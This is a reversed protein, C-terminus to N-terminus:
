GYLLSGFGGWSWTMFPFLDKIVTNCKNADGVPPFQTYIHLYNLSWSQYRRTRMQRCFQVHASFSNSLIAMTLYGVMEEHVAVSGMYSVSSMDKYGGTCLTMKELHPLKEFCVDFFQPTVFDLEIDLIELMHKQMFVDLIDRVEHFRFRYGRLELVTLSAALPRLFPIAGPLNPSEHDLGLVLARLHPLEIPEPFRASNKFGPIMLICLGDAHRPLFQQTFTTSSSWPIDIALVDLLPFHGLELFLSEFKINFTDFYGVTFIFSKLTLQHNNVFTVLSAVGQRCDYISTDFSPVGYLSMELFELKPFVPSSSLAHNLHELTTSLTLKRLNPGLTAWAVLLFPLCNQLSAKQLFYSRIHLHTLNPMLSFANSM